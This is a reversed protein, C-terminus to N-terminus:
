KGAQSTVESAETNFKEITSKIDKGLAKVIAKSQGKSARLEPLIWEGIGTSLLAYEAASYGLTM